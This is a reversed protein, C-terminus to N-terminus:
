TTAGWFLWGKWEGKSGAMRNSKGFKKKLCGWSKNKGSNCVERPLLTELISLHYRLSCSKELFLSVPYAWLLFIFWSCFKKKKKSHKERMVVLSCKEEMISLRKWIFGEAKWSSNMQWMCLLWPGSDAVTWGVWYKYATCEKKTAWYYNSKMEGWQGKFWGLM